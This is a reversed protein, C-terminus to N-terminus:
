AKEGVVTVAGDDREPAPAEADDEQNLYLSAAFVIDRRIKESCSQFKKELVESGMQNSAECLQLLLEDVRRICRM